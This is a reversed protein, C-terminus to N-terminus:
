TYAICAQEEEIEISEVELEEGRVARSTQRGRVAPVPVAAVRDGVRARLRQLAARAPVIELELRAGECLTERAVIGFYFECRTRCSRACGARRARTIATVRCGDAHRAATDVIASAISLEHVGGCSRSRRPSSREVATEVAAAVATTLGIGPQEVEAPECAIVVVKGPWGGVSKVFRLM